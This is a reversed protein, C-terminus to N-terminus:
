KKLSCDVIDYPSFFMGQIDMTSRGKTKDFVTFDADTGHYVVRLNGNEDVAKSDKFYERQAETLANGASDTSTITSKANKEKHGNVNLAM